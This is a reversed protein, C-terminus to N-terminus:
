PLPLRALCQWLYHGPQWWLSNRHTCYIFGTSLSLRHIYSLYYLLSREKFWSFVTCWILQVLERQIVQYLDTCWLLSVICDLFICPNPCHSVLAGMLIYCPGAGIEWLDSFNCLRRSQSWTFIFCRHAQSQLFASTSSPLSFHVFHSSDM